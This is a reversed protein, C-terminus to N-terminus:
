LAAGDCQGHSLEGCHMEDLNGEELTCTFVSASRGVCWRVFTRGYPLKVGGVNGRLGETM